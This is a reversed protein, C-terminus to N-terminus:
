LDFVVPPFSFPTNWFDVCGGKERSGIVSLFKLRDGWAKTGEKYHLYRAWTVPLSLVLIWDSEGAEFGQERIGLAFYFM